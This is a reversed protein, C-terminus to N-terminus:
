EILIPVPGTSLSYKVGEFTYKITAGSNVYYLGPSTFEQKGAPNLRTQITVVLLYENAALNGLNWVILTASMQGNGTPGITPTPISWSTTVGPGTFASTGIVAWEASVIDKLVVNTLAGTTKIYIHLTFTLVTFTQYPGAPSISDPGWLQVRTGPWNPEWLSKCFSSVGPGCVIAAMAPTVAASTIALSALIILWLTSAKKMQGVGKRNHATARRLLPSHYMKGLRRDGIDKADGLVITRV